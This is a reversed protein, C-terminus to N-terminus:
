AASARVIGARALERALGQVAQALPSDPDHLALPTGKRLAQAQSPDFPVTGIVPRGLARELDAIPPRPAAGVHNNVIIYVKSVWQKLARLTAVATQISPPEATVVLGVVTAAELAAMTAEDLVSATDVVVRAYRSQLTELAVRVAARPGGAGVLPIVPSPLVSLGAVHHLLHAEVGGADVTGSRVLGQWNPDPRLGLQLAVHGSSRCLDVVCASGAESRALTAALNVSLTTAGVGGRLSLLAVTGTLTLSAAGAHGVGVRGELLRTVRESLEAMTVPKSMHEDAGAELAAQRDVEQGRATLILIPVGVTGPNSRLDRCIEYGTVGPMMVDIIALDPPDNLAKDLGDTGDASLITQHGDRQLLLSIMDLFETDDDIVLINAM